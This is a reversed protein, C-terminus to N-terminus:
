GASRNKVTKKEVEYNVGVMWDAYNPDVLKLKQVMEQRYLTEIVTGRGPWIRFKIRYISKEPSPQQIGMLSLPKVQVGPVQEAFSETTEHVVKIVRQQMEPDVPLAVDVICRVYGRPYSVVNMISRNPIYVEAGLANEIVVFRIGIYRVIGTQGGIEVMNGVDVLDTLVLTLGTVVDQVLGQFGFAIALGVVSASALYATLSVGLEHLILGVAGFYLGFVLFSKTLSTISQFKPRTAAMGMLRQMLFRVLMVLGHSGVALVLIVLIRGFTSDIGRITELIHM